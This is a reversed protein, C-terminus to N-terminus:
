LKRREIGAVLFEWPSPRHQRNRKKGYPYFVYVAWWMRGMTIMAILGSFLVFWDGVALGYLLRSADSALAADIFRRSHGASTGLRRIAQTEWEYKMADLISLGGFVLGIAIQWWTM